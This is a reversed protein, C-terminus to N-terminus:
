SIRISAFTLLPIFGFVIDIVNIKYKSNLTNLMYDWFPTLFGYNTDSDIHHLKHFYKMNNLMRNKGTYTHSLLHVYEFLLYYMPGFICLYCVSKSGIVCYLLNYMIYMLVVVVSMSNHIISLKNPYDHHKKHHTYFVKHLFLHFGYDIFSYIFSSLIFGNLTDMYNYNNEFVILINYYIVAIWLLVHFPIFHSGFLLRTLYSSVPKINLKSLDYNNTIIIEIINNKYIINIMNSHSVHKLRIINTHSVNPKHINDGDSLILYDTDTLKNSNQYIPYEKIMYWKDNCYINYCLKSIIMICKEVFTNSIFGGPSILICKTDINNLNKYKIACAGGFSFGVICEININELKDIENKIQLLVEEFIDNNKLHLKIYINNYNDLKRTYINSSQFLGPFYLISKKKNDYMNNVITYKKNNENFTLPYFTELFTFYPGFLLSDYLNNLLAPRNREYISHGVIQLLWASIHLSINMRTSLYEKFGFHIIYLTQLYYVSHISKTSLVDFLLYSISYFANVCLSLYLPTCAYFTILLLPICMQHILINTDNKHYQKYVFLPNQM